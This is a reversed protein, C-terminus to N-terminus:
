RTKQKTTSKERQNSDGCDIVFLQINKINQEKFLNEGLTMNQGIGLYKVDVLVFTM